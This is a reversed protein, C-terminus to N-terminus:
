DYLGLQNQRIVKRVTEMYESGNKAYRGLGKILMSGTPSLLSARQQHRLTRLEKFAPRTNLIHIYKRVANGVTPYSEVEHTAGEARQRPIIGCGPSSCWIGFYNNGERAFRSTGWASEIAAQAILLSLPIADTRKILQIWSKRIDSDFDKVEMHRALKLVWQQEDDSLPDGSRYRLYLGLLITRQKGITYLIPRAERTITNIFASKKIKPDKIKRFDPIPNQTKKASLTSTATTSLQEATPLEFACVNGIYASGIVLALLTTLPNFM